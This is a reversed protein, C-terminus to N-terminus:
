SICWRRPHRHRERDAPPWRTTAGILPKADIASVATVFGPWIALNAHAVTLPEGAWDPPLRLPNGPHGGQARAPVEFGFWTGTRGMGCQVEDCVLLWGQEDCFARLGRQFEVDAINIGGEGQVIELMVAVVNKNYRALTRIAELNNYPVRVFGSVLPEFGAQAKRNGTASLTALSRGHFAKEFVVIHPEDVGRNHGYLRAIKIAAENAELGSNCFFVNTMGSREVLRAALQEQGPVHYYNSSHIIKGIQDTLAAVLRPHNHGLTNVAIGSGLDIYEKGNEDKVRVGKGETLVLPFRAYTNAIYQQDREMISM